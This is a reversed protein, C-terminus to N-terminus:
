RGRGAPSTPGFPRTPPEGRSAATVAALPRFGLISHRPEDIVAERSSRDWALFDVIGAIGPEYGVSIPGSYEQATVLHVISVPWAWSLDAGLESSRAKYYLWSFAQGALQDYCDGPEARLDKLFWGIGAGGRLMGPYYTVFRPASSATWLAGDQGSWLELGDQLGYSPPRPSDTWSEIVAPWFALGLYFHAVEPSSLWTAAQEGLTRYTPSLARSAQVFTWGIGANGDAVDTFTATPDAGLPLDSTLWTVGGLQADRVLVSPDGLWALIARADDAFPQGSEPGLAENLAMFYYAVGANGSYFGTISSTSSGSVPVYAEGTGSVILRDELWNGAQRALELYAPGDASVESLRLLFYGIGAAGRDLGTYFVEDDPSSGDGADIEAWFADDAGTTRARARLWQAAGEAARLYDEQAPDGPDPFTVDADHYTGYLELFFMGIGAVGRQYGTAPVRLEDPCAVIDTDICQNWSLSQPEGDPPPNAHELLWGAASQVEAYYIEPNGTEVEATQLPARRLELAGALLGRAVGAVGSELGPHVLAERDELERWYVGADDELGLALIQNMASVMAFAEEEASPVPNIQTSDCAPLLAV